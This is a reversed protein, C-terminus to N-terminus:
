AGHLRAATGDALACQPPAALLGRCVEALRAATAPFDERDTDVVAVSFPRAAYGQQIMEAARAREDADLSRGRAPDLIADLRASLTVCHVAIGVAGFRAKLFRWDRTRLPKAVVLTSRCELAELGARVLARSTTLVEEFWRKGPDSLDDSDIFAADLEHALARGLTTKGAGIPGNLVIVHRGTSAM